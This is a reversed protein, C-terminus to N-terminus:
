TIDGLTIEPLVSTTVEIVNMQCMKFMMVNNLNSVQITFSVQCAQTPTGSLVARGNSPFNPQLTLGAPLNGIVTWEWQEFYGPACFEFSTPEGVCACEYFIGSFPQDCERSKNVVPYDSCNGTAGLCDVPAASDTSESNM